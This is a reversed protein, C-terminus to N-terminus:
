VAVESSMLDGIGSWIQEVSHIGAGGL